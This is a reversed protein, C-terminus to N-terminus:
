LGFSALMVIVSAVAILAVTGEGLFNVLFGFYLLVFIIFLPMAWGFGVDLLSDIVNVVPTFFMASGWIWMNDAIGAGGYTFSILALIMVFVVLTFGDLSSLAM